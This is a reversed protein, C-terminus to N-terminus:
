PAGCELKKMEQSVAQVGADTIFDSKSYSSLKRCLSAELGKSKSYALNMLQISRQWNGTHAYGDIFVYLESPESANLGKQLTEDGLKVVQGWDGRQRALDAKEFYYCWSAAPEQGFIDVPPQAAKEPATVIQDIHSLSVLRDIDNPYVPLQSDVQPDLIRLCGPPSYFVALLNSTSGHYSANRYVQSVPQNEELAPISHGLRVDTYALFYPLNISRNEPAYTWNLPATLSNDSYYRLPFASTVVLTGPKLGPARWAMQWFLDKQTNWERRYSNATQLNAGISFAVVLTLLAVKQARTRVIWELLVVILICSGPMFALAFRDWPFQLDVSLNIIWYPWGAFFLWCLSLILAQRTWTSQTKKFHSSSEPNLRAFTLYIGAFVLSVAVVAWFVATSSTSFDNITPIRFPEIWTIWATNFISTVIISLLTLFSKVPSGVLNGLMDPKYTPFQLIAVRWVLFVILLLLYPAWLKLSKGLREKQNQITESLILWILIPRVADLGVYYETSFTCFAYCVLALGTYLWYRTPKRISQIMFGFSLIYGSLLFFANSWVVSIPQQKFGPYVMFLLAIWTVQETRDPWLKRLTWWVCLTTLWRSILGLIQWQVPVLKLFTTTLIYIGALFPRDGAFVEQYGAPGLTHAFWVMPWDDWYFGLSPILLGFALIAFALLVIPVTRVNFLRKLV